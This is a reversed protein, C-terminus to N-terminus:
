SLTAISDCKLSKFEPSNVRILEPPIYRKGSKGKLTSAIYDGGFGGAVGGAGIAAWVPVMSGGSIISSAIVGAGIATLAGAGAVWGLNSVESFIATLAYYQYDLSISGYDKGEVFPVQYLYGYYSKDGEFKTELLYKKLDTYSFNGSPFIEKVSDDFAIQSCLSCYLNEFTEKGVYNVKGEGFMWWCEALEDALVQYVEQETEVEKIEPSTMKECSGDFSLCIYSRKCNLPVAETPILANGRTIVSNHCLEKDSEKGLDLNFLFLLLVAFSAILIVLLVIQQTTLEAKKNM